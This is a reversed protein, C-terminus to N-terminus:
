MKVRRKGTDRSVKMEGDANFRRVLYVEEAMITQRVPSSKDDPENGFIIRVATDGGLTTWADM